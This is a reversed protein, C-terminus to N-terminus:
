TQLKFMAWRSKGGKDANVTFRLNGKEFFVNFFFFTCIQGLTNTSIRLFRLTGAYLIINEKQHVSCSLLKRRQARQQSWTGQLIKQNRSSLTVHFSWDQNPLTGMQWIKPFSFLSQDGQSWSWFGSFSIPLDWTGMSVGTTSCHSGGHGRILESGFWTGQKCNGHSSLLALGEACLAHHMDWQEWISTPIILCKNKEKRLISECTFSAEPWPKSNFGSYSHWLCNM